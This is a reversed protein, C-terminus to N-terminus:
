FRTLKESRVKRFTNYHEPCVVLLCDQGDMMSEFFLDRVVFRERDSDQAQRPLGELSKVDVM